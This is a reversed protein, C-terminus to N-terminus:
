GRVRGPAEGALHLVCFLQLRVPAAARAAGSGKLVASFDRGDLGEPIPLGALGCVTPYLDVLSILCSLPTQRARIGPGCILLPVNVSPGFYLTKNWLGHEGGMEGHDSAYIVIRFVDSDRVRMQLYTQVPPSDVRSIRPPPGTVPTAIGALPEDYVAHNNIKILIGAQLEEAGRLERRLAAPDVM